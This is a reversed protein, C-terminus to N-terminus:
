DERQYMEISKKHQLFYRTSGEQGNVKTLDVFYLTSGDQRRGNEYLIM